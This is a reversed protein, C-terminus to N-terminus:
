QPKRQVGRPCDDTMFNVKAFLLLHKRPIEVPVEWKINVDPRAHRKQHSITTAQRRPPTIRIAQSRRRNEPNNGLDFPRLEQWTTREQTMSSNMELASSGVGLARVTCFQCASMVNGCLQIGHCVYAFRSLSNWAFLTSLFTDSRLLFSIVPCQLFSRLSYSRSQCEEGFIIRTTLRPFILHAPAHLLLAHPTKSTVCAYLLGSQLGLRLHSLLILVIKLFIPNPSPPGKVLNIPAADLHAIEGVKPSSIGNV